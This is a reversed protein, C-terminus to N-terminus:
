PAAKARLPGAAIRYGGHTVTPGELVWVPRDPYLSLIKNRVEESRDWVYIPADAHLDLPNYIAASM